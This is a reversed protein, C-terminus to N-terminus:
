DDDLQQLTRRIADRQRRMNRDEMEDDDDQRRRREGRRPGGFKSMLDELTANGSFDDDDAPIYADSVRERRPSREERSQRGESRGREGRTREERMREERPREERPPERPTDELRLSLSIRKSQPDVDLM